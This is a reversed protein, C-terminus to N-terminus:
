SPVYKGIILELKQKTKEPILDRQTIIAKSLASACPCSREQPINLISRQIIKRALEANKNLNQIVMDVSVIADSDGEIWCDYDTVMALTAYCIEAERALRAESMNTMGIVDVGWSQYIMSEAKTSFPPGEMNLYTGGWHVSSTDMEELCVDYLIKRLSECVPHAFMIHAAIGEGFFTQHQRGNTWNFYQDILVIDLPKIKKKFSGVASVSIIWEVGLKKLAWINARYNIESPLLRHGRGHRPLFVVEREGLQGIFLEDSPEGFPTDVKRREKNSLGGIHYLGSGGIIGVRKTM